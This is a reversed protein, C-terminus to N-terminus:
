TPIHSSHHALRSPLKNETNSRFMANIPFPMVCYGTGDSIILIDLVNNYQKRFEFRSSLFM